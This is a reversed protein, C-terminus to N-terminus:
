SQCRKYINRSCIFHDKTSTVLSNSTEYTVCPVASESQWGFFMIKNIVFEKLYKTLSVNRSLDTNLDGGFVVAMFEEKEILMDVESFCPDVNTISRNDCPLYACVFLVSLGNKSFMKM